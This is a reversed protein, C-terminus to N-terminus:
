KRRFILLTLSDDIIRAFFFLDTKRTEIVTIYLNDIHKRVWWVLVYKISITWSCKDLPCFRRNSKKERERYPCTQRKKKNKQQYDVKPFHNDKHTKGNTPQVCIFYIDWHWNYHVHVREIIINKRSTKIM